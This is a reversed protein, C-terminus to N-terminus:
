GDGAVRGRGRVRPAPIGLVGRALAVTIGRREALAAADLQDVLRRAADFSREMHLTLWHVVEGSVRLQRDTFLKVLVASLLADDPPGM